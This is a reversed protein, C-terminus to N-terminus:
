LTVVHEQAVSLMKILRSVLSCQQRFCVSTKISQQETRADRSESDLRFGWMEDLFSLVSHDSAIEYYSHVYISFPKM